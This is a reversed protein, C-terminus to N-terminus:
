RPSTHQTRQILPPVSASQAWAWSVKAMTEQGVQPSTNQTVVFDVGAVVHDLGAAPDLSSAALDIPHRRVDDLPARPLLSAHLVEIITLCPPLGRMSGLHRGIWAEIFYGSWADIGTVGFLHLQCQLPRWDLLRHWHLWYPVFSGIWVDIGDSGRVSTLSASAMGVSALRVPVPHLECRHASHGDHLTPSFERPVRAEPLAFYSSLPM